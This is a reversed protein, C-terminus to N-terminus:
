VIDSKWSRDELAIAVVVSTKTLAAIIV